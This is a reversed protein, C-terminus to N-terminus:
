SLRAPPRSTPTVPKFSTLTLERRHSLLYRSPRLSQKTRAAASRLDLAGSSEPARCHSTPWFRLRRALENRVFFNAVGLGSGDAAKLIWWNSTSRQSKLARYTPLKLGRVVAGKTLASPLVRPQIVQIPRCSGQSKHTTFPRM